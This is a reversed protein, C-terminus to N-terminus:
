EGTEGQSPQFLWVIGFMLLLVLMYITAYIMAISAFVDSMYGKDFLLLLALSAPLVAVKWGKPLLMLEMVLLFGYISCIVM